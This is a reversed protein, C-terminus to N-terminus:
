QWVISQECGSLASYGCLVPNKNVKTVNTSMYSVFNLERDRINVLAM